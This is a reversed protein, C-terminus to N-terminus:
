CDTSWVSGMQRPPSGARDAHVSPFAPACKIRESRRDAHGRGALRRYGRCPTAAGTPAISCVPGSASTPASGHGDAAGCVGANSPRKARSVFVANWGRAAGRYHDGSCSPGPPGHCRHRRFASRAAERRTKLIAAAM